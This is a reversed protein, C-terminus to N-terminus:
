GHRKEELVFPERAGRFDKLRKPSVGRVRSGELTIEEKEDIKADGGKEFRDLFV